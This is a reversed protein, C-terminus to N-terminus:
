YRSKFTKLKAIADRIRAREDLSMNPDHLRKELNAIQERTNACMKTKTMGDRPAAMDDGDTPNRKYRKVPRKWNFLIKRGTETDPEPEGETIDDAPKEDITLYEKVLGGTAFFRLKHTQRHYELFWDPAAELESAKVSYAATKIVELLGGDLAKVPKIHVSPAYDLRAADQWLSIWREQKIYYQGTFYSPPVFLLAHFHPHAMGDGSKGRTVEVSRLWGQVIRCEKRQMLRQWARGMDQITRRLAHIECNKVTLTLFLWRHKPNKEMMPALAAEMERVLRVARARQCVPCHRLRCKASHAHFEHGATTTHESLILVESCERMKPGYKALDAATDYIAAVTDANAKTADWVAHRPSIDSLWPSDTPSKDQHPPPAITKDM